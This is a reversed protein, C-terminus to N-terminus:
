HGRTRGAEGKGENNRKRRESKGNIRLKGRRKRRHGKPKEGNVRRKGM